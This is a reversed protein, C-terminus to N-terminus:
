DMWDLCATSHLSHTEPLPNNVWVVENHVLKM